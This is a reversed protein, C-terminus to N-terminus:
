LNPNLDVEKQPLPYFAAEAETIGATIANPDTTTVMAKRRLDFGRNAEFSLEFSRERVVYNRFEATSMNAPADPLNARKRIKNLWKYSDSIPGSAEAYVLAIDSFRILFPRNSTRGTGVWDNAVYKLTVGFDSTKKGTGNANQFVQKTILWDRRRDGSEFSNYFVDNVRMAGYGDCTKYYTGDPRAIYVPQNSNAVMFMKPILSYNWDNVGSKEHNSLFIHEPGDPKAVDYINLLDPDFSYVNQDYLVKHAWEAASLYMDEVSENMDVYLAVGTEKSSAIQLYVKALLSQAAVKDAYGTVREIRMMQEARKLDDIIFNYIEDLNKAKSTYAQDLESIQHNHIPVLGFLRVLYFYHYARLFYAQGLIHDKEEVEFDKDKLNDIVANARNIGIYCYKFIFELETNTTFTSTRWYDVDLISFTSSTPAYDMEESAMDNFFFMRDYYERHCIALYAYNLSSQADSITKFFNEDTYFGRPEEKLSCSSFTCCAAVTLIIFRIKISIKM